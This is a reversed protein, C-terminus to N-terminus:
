QLVSFQLSPSLTSLRTKLNCLSEVLCNLPTVGLLCFLIYSICLCRFLLRPSHLRTSIHKVRFEEQATTCDWEATSPSPFPQTNKKELWIPLSNVAAEFLISQSQYAHILTLALLAAGCTKQRQLSQAAGAEKKKKKLPSFFLTAWQMCCHQASRQRTCANCLPAM